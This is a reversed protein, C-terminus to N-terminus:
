RNVTEQGNDVEYKLCEVTVGSKTNNERNVKIYCLSKLPDPMPTKNAVHGGGRRGFNCRHPMELLPLSSKSICLMRALLPRRVTKMPIAGFNLAISASTECPKIM